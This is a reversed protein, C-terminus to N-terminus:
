QLILAGAQFTSEFVPLLEIQKTALPRAGYFYMFIFIIWNLHQDASSGIYREVIFSSKVVIQKLLSSLNQSCINEFESYNVSVFQQLFLFLYKWLHRTYKATQQALQAPVCINCFFM